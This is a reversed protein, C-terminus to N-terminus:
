AQEGQLNRVRERQDAAWKVYLAPDIEAARAMRRSFAADFDRGLADFASASARLSAAPDSEMIRYISAASLPRVSM